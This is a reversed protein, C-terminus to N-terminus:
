LVLRLPQELLGCIDRLLEAGEAGYIVRHDCVLTLSMRKRVVVEGEWAIPREEISGVGLIAAQPPNIVPIFWEVGFMGLNSVTFTAGELEAPSIARDRVRKAAARTIAAIAGASMRDADVVVPVVLANPAAVAFGVNVRSFREITGDRFAANAGPHARLALASAKIVLDNLSPVVDEPGAASVLGDRLSAAAEMDVTRHLIFEPITSKAQSMRRAVIQQLRTQEILESEGKLEADPEKAQDAPAPADALEAPAPAGAPQAAAAEIDARTIRGRPGTGRVAGLDIGQDRAIRRAVPSAKVRAGSTAPADSSSVPADSSSVPVESSSRGAAGDPGASPLSSSAAGSGDANPRAGAIPTGIVAIVTGVPLTEGEPRLIQLVGASPAEYVTIAKDSEIEALPEGAAVEDGDSKLWAVIVGEEM